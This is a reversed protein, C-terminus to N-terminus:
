HGEGDGAADESEGTQDRLPLRRSLYATSGILVGWVGFLYLVGGATSSGEAWLVPLAFLVAGLVPFLRAADMLRRRRYTSRTLFLPDDSRSM